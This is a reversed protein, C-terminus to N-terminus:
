FASAMRRKINVAVARNNPQLAQRACTEVMPLVAIPRGDVGPAITVDASL